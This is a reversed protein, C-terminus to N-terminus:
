KKRLILFGVLLVVVIIAAAAGIVAYLVTNDPSSDLGEAVTLYTTAFSSGYSEDGVFTATITYLGAVDPVWGDFAFTGSYGDSTVVGINYYNGNPDLVDFSVPVGVLMVDGYTGDAMMVGSLAGGVPAGIHIQEM